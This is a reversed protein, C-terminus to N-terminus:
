TKKEEGVHRWSQGPVNQFLGDGVSIVAAHIIVIAAIEAPVVRGGSLRWMARGGEYHLLLAAGGKMAAIVREAAHGRRDLRRRSRQLESVTHVGAGPYAPKM